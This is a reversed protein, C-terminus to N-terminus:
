QEGSASGNSLSRVTSTIDVELGDTLSVCVELQDASESVRYISEDFSLPLDAYSFFLINIIYRIIMTGQPQLIIESTLRYAYFGPVGTNTGNETDVVGSRPIMFSQHTSGVSSSPSFGVVVPSLPINTENYFFFAFSTENNYVLAVQFTNVQM